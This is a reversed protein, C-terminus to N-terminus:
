NKVQNSLEISLHPSRALYNTRISIRILPNSSVKSYPCINWPIELQPLSIQKPHKHFIKSSPVCCGVSCKPTPPYIILVCNPDSMTSQLGDWSHLWITPQYTMTLFHSVSLVDVCFVFWKESKEAAIPSKSKNGLVNDLPQSPYKNIQKLKVMYASQHRHLPRNQATGRHLCFKRRSREDAVGKDFRPLKPSCEKTGHWFVPVNSSENRWDRFQGHFIGAM